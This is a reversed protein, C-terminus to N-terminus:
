SIMNLQMVSQFQSVLYYTKVQVMLLTCSPDLVFAKLLPHRALYLPLFQEREIETAETVTGVVTVAIADHFDEAQNSRNDILLSVNPNNSLNTYKRTTRMTAFILRTLDDTAAFAVLSTYPSNDSSTALVALPQSNFLPEIQEMFTASESMRESRKRSNSM